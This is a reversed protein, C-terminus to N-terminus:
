EETIFDKHQLAITMDTVLTMCDDKQAEVFLKVQDIIEKNYDMDELWAFIDEGDANDIICSDETTNVMIMGEAWVEFMMRDRPKIEEMDVYDWVDLLVEKPIKVNNLTISPTESLANEIKMNEVDLESMDFMDALFQKMEAVVEQENKTAKILRKKM